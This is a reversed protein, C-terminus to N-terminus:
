EHMANTCADAEHRHRRPVFPKNSMTESFVMRLVSAAMDGVHDECDYSAEPEGTILLANGLESILPVSRRVLVAYGRRLDFDRKGLAAVQEEIATAVLICNGSTFGSQVAASLAGGGKKLKACSFTRKLRGTRVEGSVITGFPQEFPRGMQTSFGCEVLDNKIIREKVRMFAADSRYGLIIVAM